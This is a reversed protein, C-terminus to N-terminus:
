SVKRKVLPRNLDRLADKGIWRAAPEASRALAGALEVAAAHLVGNRHGIGRLAWSVGKKVFNRGDPAATEILPLVDLFQRDPAKKDHGAVSAILAFAARRVFEEDRAAWEAVKAWSGPVRDFLHFCLTDCIAWNDFDRCWRDMQASTVRAPEDVFAALSRAEYVGTKWLALALSHDRGLKKAIAQIDSMSVGIPNRATIGFRDLKAIWDPSAKERLAALADRATPM